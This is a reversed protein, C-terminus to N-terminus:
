EVLVGAPVLSGLPPHRRHGHQVDEAGAAVPQDRPERRELHARAAGTTGAVLVILFFVPLIRNRMNLNPLSKRRMARHHQCLLLEIPLRPKHLESICM